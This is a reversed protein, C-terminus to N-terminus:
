DHVHCSRTRKTTREETDGEVHGRRRKAEPTSSCSSAAHLSTQLPPPQRMRMFTKRALPSNKLTRMPAPKKMTVNNFIMWEWRNRIDKHMADLFECDDSSHEEELQLMPQEEKALAATADEEDDEEDERADKEDVEEDDEEDEDVEMHVMSMEDEQEDDEENEAESEESSNSMRKMNYWRCSMRKTQQQVYDADYEEEQVMEQGDDTEDEEEDEAESGRSRKRSGHDIELSNTRRIREEERADFEQMGQVILNRVFLGVEGLGHAM